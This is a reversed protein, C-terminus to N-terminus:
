WETEFHLGGVVSGDGTQTHTHTHLTVETTDLETHPQPSYGVLNRQGYSEGPLFVPIPQWKRRWPIKRVWPDFGLKRHRRCQCTTGKGSAGGPFYGGVGM